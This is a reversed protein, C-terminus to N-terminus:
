SIVNPEELEESKWYTWTGNHFKPNAAPDSPRNNVPVMKLRWKDVAAQLERVLEQNEEALNNMECPDSFVNFVCPAKLPDCSKGEAQDGCSIGSRLDALDDDTLTKEAFEQLALWTPSSRVRTAYNQGIQGYRRKDNGYWGGFDANGATTGNIYKFGDARLYAVYEDVPDINHLIERRESAATGELVPWQNVGDIDEPLQTM